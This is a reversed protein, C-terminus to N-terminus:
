LVIGRELAIDHYAGIIGGIWSEKGLNNVIEVIDTFLLWLAPQTLMSFDPPLEGGDPDTYARWISFYEEPRLAGYEGFFDRWWRNRWEPSISPAPGNMILKEADFATASRINNLLDRGGIDGEGLVAMQYGDLKVQVDLRVDHELLVDKAKRYSEGYNM